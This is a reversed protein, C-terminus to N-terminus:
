RRSIVAERGIFWIWVSQLDVPTTYKPAAARRSKGLAKVQKSVAEDYMPM